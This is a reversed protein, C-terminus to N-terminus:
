TSRRQGTITIRARRQIREARMADQYRRLGAAGWLERITAEVALAHRVGHQGCRYCYASDSRAGCCRCCQARRRTTM